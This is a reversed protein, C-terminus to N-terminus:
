CQASAIEGIAAAGCTRALSRFLYSVAPRLGSELDERSLFLRGNADVALHFHDPAVYAHGPLPTAGHTAIDVDLGTTQSLWDVMGSLFGPAIHQVIVLPVPFDKPLGSLITQLVPPGGTSAGIGIVTIPPAADTSNSHAPDHAHM